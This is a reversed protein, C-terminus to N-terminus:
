KIVEIQDEPNPEGFLRNSLDEYEGDLPLGSEEYNSFIDNLLSWQSETLKVIM